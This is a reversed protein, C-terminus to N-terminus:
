KERNIKNFSLNKSNYLAKVTKLIKVYMIKYLGMIVVKNGRTKVVLENEM